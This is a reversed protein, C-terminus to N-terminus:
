SEQRAPAQQQNQTEAHIPPFMDALVQRLTSPFVPKFIMRDVNLRQYAAHIERSLESSFIMIKGPFGLSRLQMVLELGNVKPMHHDTIVLDYAKLDAKVLDLALAGDEVCELVHGDRMLSIRAVERLEAMDEAYLVRLTKRAPSSGDQDARPVAASTSPHRLFPM